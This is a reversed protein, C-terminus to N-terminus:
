RSRTFHIYNEFFFLNKNKSKLFYLIGRSCQLIGRSCFYEEVASCYLSISQINEMIHNTYDTFMLTRHAKFFFNPFNTDLFIYKSMLDDKNTVNKM